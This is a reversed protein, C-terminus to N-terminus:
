PEWSWRMGYLLEDHTPAIAYMEGGFHLVALKGHCAYERTAPYKIVPLDCTRLVAPPRHLSKAAELQGWRYSCLTVCLLSMAIAIIAAIRTWMDM